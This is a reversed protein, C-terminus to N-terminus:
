ASKLYSSKGKNQNRNIMKNFFKQIPSELLSHFLCGILLATLLSITTAVGFGLSEFINHKKYVIDLEYYIPIHVLYLSFSSNGLYLLLRSTPIKNNTLDLSAAGIIILASSVGFGILRAVSFELFVGYRISLWSLIFGTCGIILVLWNFKITFRRVIFASLCGLLFEFNFPSFIFHYDPHM